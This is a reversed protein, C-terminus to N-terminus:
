RKWNVPSEDLEWNSGFARLQRDRYGSSAVMTPSGRYLSLSVSKETGANSRRLACSRSRSCRMRSVSRAHRVPRTTLYTIMFSRTKPRILHNEPQQFKRAGPDRIGTQLAKMAELFELVKVERTCSRRRPTFFLALLRDDPIVLAPWASFQPPGRRIPTERSPRFARDSERIVALAGNSHTASV